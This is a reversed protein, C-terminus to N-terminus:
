AQGLANGLPVCSGLPLADKLGLANVGSGAQEQGVAMQPIRTPVTFHM